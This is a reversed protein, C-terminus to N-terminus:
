VAGFERRARRDETLKLWDGGPRAGPIRMSTLPIEDRSLEGILVVPYAAPDPPQEFDAYIRPLTYDTAPPYRALRAEDAPDIESPPVYDVDPQDGFEPVERLRRGNHERRLERDLDHEAMGLAEAFEADDMGHRQALRRALAKWEVAAPKVRPWLDHNMEWFRRQEGPDWADQERWARAFREFREHGPTLRKRRDGAAGTVLGLWQPEPCKEPAM